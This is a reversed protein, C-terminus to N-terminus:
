CRNRAPSCAPRIRRRAGNGGGCPWPAARQCEGPGASPEFVGGSEAPKNELEFDNSSAGSHGPFSFWKWWYVGGFWPQPWVALFFAEYAEAQARLDVPAEDTIEWHRWAGYSASRYGLETFVVTRGFGALRALLTLVAILAAAGAVGRALQRTSM